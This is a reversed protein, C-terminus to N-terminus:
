RHALLGARGSSGFTRVSAELSLQLAGETSPKVEGDTGDQPTKASCAKRLMSSVYKDLRHRLAIQLM